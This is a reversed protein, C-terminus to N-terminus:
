EGVTIQVDRQEPLTLSTALNALANAKDNESRPIHGIHVEQFQSMVYKARQHYPILNVNKIAYQGNIQKIILQSDGFVQLSDIHMELAIELGIILAEYEAM